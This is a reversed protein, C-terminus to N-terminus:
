AANPSSPADIHKWSKEQLVFRSPGTALPHDDAIALFEGVGESLYQPDWPLLLSKPTLGPALRPMIAHPHRARTEADALVASLGQDAIDRLDIFTRLQPPHLHLEGVRALAEQPTVWASAVAEQNDITPEQGDDLVAIYFTAAFRKRSHSPTIWEAYYHLRDVDIAELLGAPTPEHAHLTKRWSASTEADVPKRALLVGAEEFLERAATVRLDSEGPDAAGGPFVYASSMFSAKGPRRILFIELAGHGPRERILIVTAAARPTAYQPDSM